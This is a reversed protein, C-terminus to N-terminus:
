AASQEISSQLLVFRVLPHMQMALHLSRHRHFVVVTRRFRRPMPEPDPYGLLGPVVASVVSQLATSEVLPQRAGPLLRAARLLCRSGEFPFCRSPIMRLLYAEIDEASKMRWLNTPFSEGSLRAQPMSDAGPMSLEERSHYRFRPPHV